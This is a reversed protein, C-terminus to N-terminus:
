KFIFIATIITILTTISGIGAWVLKSPKSEKEKILEQNEKIYLDKYKDKEIKYEQKDQELGSIKEKYKDIAEYLLEKDTKYIKLDILIKEAIPKDFCLAENAYSLPAIILNSIFSIFIILAVIKSKM